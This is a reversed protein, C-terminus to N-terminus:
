RRAARVLEIHETAPPATGGSVTLRLTIRNDDHVRLDAAHVHGPNVTLNTADVFDFIAHGADIRSAKLRPQNQAACYHTMRLTDDDLHYVSTMSPSGGMVLTEIVASGAGTVQYTARLTGEGDRGGSWAYTGEWEGALARLRSFM